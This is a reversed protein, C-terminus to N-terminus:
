RCSSRRLCRPPCGRPLRLRGSRAHRDASRCRDHRHARDEEALLVPLDVAHLGDIAQPQGEVVGRHRSCVGLGRGRLGLAWRAFVGMKPTVPRGAEPKKTNMHNGLEVTGSELTHVGDLNLHFHVGPLRFVRPGHDHSQGIGRDPFRPFPDMRRHPGRSELLFDPHVGDVQCGGVQSLLPRGEIKGDSEGHRGAGLVVPNRIEFRVAYHAFQGEVSFDAGYLPGQGNRQFRFPPSAFAEEEGSGIGRFRGHDISDLNVGDVAEVVGPVEQGPITGEAGELEVPEGVEVRPPAILDVEFVDLALLM